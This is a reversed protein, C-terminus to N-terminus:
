RDQVLVSYSREDTVAPTSNTVVRNTVTYRFGVTGANIYAQTKLSGTLISTNSLTLLADPGSVTWTSTQITVGSGLEALWTTYDFGYPEVASPDKVILDGPKRSV